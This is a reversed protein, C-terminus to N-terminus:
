EPKAGSAAIVKAWKVVETRVLAAFEDTSRSLPEVGQAALKEKFDAERLVANIETNLRGIADAPTRAPAFVGFWTTADFGPLAAEALTPVEPLVASRQAGSVALARLRGSRVHPLVPLVPPFMLPVQGGIVDTMAPSAGKYPIHVINLGGAQTKLLEMALHPSGGSGTSAYSLGGPQSKALAILAKATTAPISPHVVLVLQGAAVPAVPAFDALTDFPMKRYLGPNTAHVQSNLLLTHGDAASKAVFESGIISNAGPRNDVLVSQGLRETLRAALQRALIDNTGGPTFGVVIRLPKSPFSSQADAFPAGAVGAILLLGSLTARHRIRVRPAGVPLPRVFFTLTPLQKMSTDM